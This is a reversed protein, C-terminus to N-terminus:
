VLISLAVLFLRVLKNHVEYILATFLKDDQAGPEIKYFM